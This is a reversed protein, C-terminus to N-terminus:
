FGISINPLNVVVYARREPSYAYYVNDRTYYTRDRIVVKRCGYPLTVVENRPYRNRYRVSNRRIDRRHRYEDRYDRDWRPSEYGYGRYRDYRPDASAVSASLVTSAALVVAIAGAQFATRTKM